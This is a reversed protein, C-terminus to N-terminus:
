DPSRLDARLGDLQATFALMAARCMEEGADGVWPLHGLVELMVLGHLTAWGSTFYAFAGAPLAPWASVYAGMADQLRSSGGPLPLRALEDVSWGAFLVGHFVQGLRRAAATTPGDEPAAYDQLPAGLVLLFESRHELAWRRYALGAAVAPGDGVVEGPATAHQVADALDDYSDAIIATLLAERSPFYYYLAQVSVGVERAVARLSMAEHGGHAMADVAVRKIEGVTEARRRDRLRVADTESPM